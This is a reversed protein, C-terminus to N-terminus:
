MCLSIKLNVWHLGWESIFCCCCFVAMYVVNKIVSLCCYDLKAIHLLAASLISAKKLEYEPNWVQWFTNSWVEETRTPWIHKSQSLSFTFVLLRRTTSTIHSIYELKWVSSDKHQWYNIARALCTLKFIFCLKTQFTSIWHVWTAM